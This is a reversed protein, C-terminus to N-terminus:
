RLGRGNPVYAGALSAFCCLSCVVAIGWRHLM